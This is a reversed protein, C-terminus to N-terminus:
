CAERRGKGSRRRVLTGLLSLGLLSLTGPEPIPTLLLASGIWRPEGSLPHLGEVRWGQGVIQGLNNIDAAQTIVGSWVSVFLDNLDGFYDGDLIFGHSFGAGKVTLTIQGLDNLGGVDEVFKYCGGGPAWWESPTPIEAFIGDEWRFLYPSWDNNPENSGKGVVVGLNNIDEASTWRGGFGGLDTIQGEHWMVALTRDGQVLGVIRGQNNIASASSYIYGSLTDLDQMQGDYCVFAHSIYHQPIGPSPPAWVATKSWGVIQGLDNIGLAGSAPGGLTGLDIIQGNDWLCARSSSWNSAYCTGVVQGQNNIGLAYSHTYGPLTGLDTLTANQWM